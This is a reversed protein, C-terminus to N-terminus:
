IEAFPCAAMALKGRIQMLNSGMASKRKGKAFSVM